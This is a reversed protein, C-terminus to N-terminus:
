FEDAGGAETCSVGIAATCLRALQNLKPRVLNLDADPKVLTAAQDAVIMIQDFGYASADARLQRLQAAIAELNSASLVEQLEKLRPGLKSVFLDIADYFEPQYIFSSIIPDSRYSSLMTELADRTLPKPVWLDFLGASRAVETEEQTCATVAILPQMFWEARLQKALDDGTGSPLSWDILILDFAQSRAAELAPEIDAASAVHVNENVLLRKVITHVSADDDVLLIRTRIAQRHFISINVPKTFRIGVEHLRATGEIYRCYAVEGEQTIHQNHLSVLRVQVRTKPYVFRNFIMGIGRSSLNRTPSMFCQWENGSLVKVQLARVHYDFRPLRRKSAAGAQQERASLRDLLENLRGPEDYWNGSSM